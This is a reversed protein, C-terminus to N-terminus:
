LDCKDPRYRLTDPLATRGSSASRRLVCKDPLCLECQRVLCSVSLVTKDHRDPSTFQAHRGCWEDAHRRSHISGRFVISIICIKDTLAPRAWRQETMRLPATAASLMTLQRHIGVTTPCETCWEQEEPNPRNTYVERPPARASPLACSKSLTQFCM